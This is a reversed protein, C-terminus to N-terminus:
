VAFAWARGSHGMSMIIIVGNLIPIQGLSFSCLNLTEWIIKDKPTDFVYHLAVTLEVVGLGAGFHGGSISAASIVEDRLEDVLQRLQEKPLNRLEKPTPITDLLPTDPRVSLEFDESM